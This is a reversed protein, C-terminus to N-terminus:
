ALFRLSPRDCWHLADVALVLPREAALNLAVWLLGHLAAFSVDGDGDPAGFVPAAPAAAGALAQEARASDAVVAEFLERVVGFPFERELEPGRAALVLGGSDAARWRGLALLARKGIGAAGRDAGRPRAAWAADVLESLRAVEREVPPTM